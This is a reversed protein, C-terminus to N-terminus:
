VPRHNDVTPPVIDASAQMHLADPHRRYHQRVASALAQKVETTVPSASPGVERAVPDPLAAVLARLLEDQPGPMWPEWSALRERDVHSPLSGLIGVDNQDHVLLGSTTGRDLTLVQFLYVTHYELQRARDDESVERRKALADSLIGCYTDISREGVTRVLTADAEHDGTDHGELYFHIVGRHRQLAPIHFYRAGQAIAHEYWRPAAGRLSAAFCERDVEVPISPNLDAMLRWYGSRNRLETWSFHMHVSPAHPNRPHIITSLATASGLPRAPDDDYHVQSVNVSGRDFVATDGLEWRTGGGHRGEDRLWTVARFRDWRSDHDRDPDSGGGTSAHANAVAELGDVFRRQLSEVLAHAAIARPSRARTPDM